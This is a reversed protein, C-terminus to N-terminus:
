AAVPPNIWVKVGARTKRTKIRKEAAASRWAAATKEAAAHTANKWIHFIRILLWYRGDSDMNALARILKADHGLPVHEDGGGHRVALVYGGFRPHIVRVHHSHSDTGGCRGPEDYLLEDNDALAPPNPPYTSFTKGDWSYANKQGNINPENCCCM